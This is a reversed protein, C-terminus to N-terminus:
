FNLIELIWSPPRGNDQFISFRIYARSRNSRDESFKALHRM